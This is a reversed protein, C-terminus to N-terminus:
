HLICYLWQGFGYGASFIWAASAAIALFLIVKGKKTDWFTPTNM